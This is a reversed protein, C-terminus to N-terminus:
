ERHDLVSWVRPIGKDRNPTVFLIQRADPNHVWRTRTITRKEKTPLVCDMAVPYVGAVPLPAKFIGSKKPRLRVVEKGFNGTFQVNSLNYVITDGKPFNDNTSNVVIAQGPFVVNKRDPIFIITCNEWAAPISIKQAGAPIEGDEIPANSLVYFTLDGAPLEVEPSLNRGPLTVEVGEGAAESPYLLAVEPANRPAQLFVSRITRASLSTMAVSFVSLM